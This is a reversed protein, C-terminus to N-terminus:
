CMKISVVHISTDTSYMCLLFFVFALFLIYVKRENVQRIDAFLNLTLAAICYM